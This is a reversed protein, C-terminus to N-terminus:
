GTQGTAPAPEEDLHVRAMESVRSPKVLYLGILYVAGVIMWIVVGRVALSSPYVLSSVFSWGFPNWGVAFFWGPVFAAIGLLPIIIHSLPNFDQRRRRLFYGICAIDVVIYISVL